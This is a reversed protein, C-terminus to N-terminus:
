NAFKGVIAESCQEILEYVPGYASEDGFWPDPVSRRKGPELEDLFLKVRSYDAAPGGIRRIEQLVDEAMAYILDYSNLDAPMFRRARQGSIDIGKSLCIKQSFKHPAKGIHYNETGASDITWDLGATAAKHRLV